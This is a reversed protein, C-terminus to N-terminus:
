GGLTWVHLMMRKFLELCSMAVSGQGPVDAGHFLYHPQVVLFCFSLYNSFVASLFLVVKANDEIAFLMLLSHGSRGCHM